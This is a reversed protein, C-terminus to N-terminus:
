LNAAVAAFVDGGFSSVLQIEYIDKLRYHLSVESLDDWEDSGFLDAEIYWDPDIVGLGSFRLTEANLDYGTGVFLESGFLRGAGLVPFGEGGAPYYDLQAYVPWRPEPQFGLRGRLRGAYDSMGRDWLDLRAQGAAFLQSSEANVLLNLCCGRLEARIELDSEATVLECENVLHRYLAERILNLKAAIFDLPAGALSALYIDASHRTNELLLFPLSLSRLRISYCDLREAEAAPEFAVAVATLEGPQVTVLREFGAYAPLGAFYGDVVETVLTSVWRTDSYPTSALRRNLEGEVAAMDEAIATEVIPSNGLLHFQVSFASVRQAALHLKISVTTLPGANLVLEEMVFGRKGLAESIVGGIIETVKHQHLSIYSLDGELQGVLALELTDLLAYELRDRADQGVFDGTFQLDVTIEEITSSAPDAAALAPVLLVAVAALVPFIGRM